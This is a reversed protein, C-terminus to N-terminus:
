CSGPPDQDHLKLVAAWVFLRPEKTALISERVRALGHRQPGDVQQLTSPLALAAWVQNM